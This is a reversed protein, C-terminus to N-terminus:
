KVSVKLTFVAGKKRGKVFILFGDANGIKGEWFRTNEAKSLENEGDSDNGEDYERGLTFGVNSDSSILRVMIKQGVRTRGRYCVEDNNIVGKVSASFQGRKITIDKCQAWAQAAGFLLALSLISLMKRM